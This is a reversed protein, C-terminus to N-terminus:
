DEYNNRRKKKPVCQIIICNKKDGCYNLDEITRTFVFAVEWGKFNDILKKKQRKDYAILDQCTICEIFPKDSPHNYDRCEVYNPRSVFTELFDGLIM